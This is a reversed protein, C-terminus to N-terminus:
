TRQLPMLQDDLDRDAYARPPAPPAPDVPRLDLRETTVASPYSMRVISLM